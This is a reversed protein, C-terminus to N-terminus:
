TCPTEQPADTPPTWADIPAPGVSAYSVCGYSAEALASLRRLLVGGRRPPHRRGGPRRHPAARPRRRRRRRWRASCTSWSSPGASSTAPRCRREGLVQELPGGAAWRYAAWAFGLDPERLFALGHDKEVRDLRGWTRVTEALVERVRGEPLRPPAADDTQRSEYVLASVCAALEAPTLGAWLGDRLCEAALLDLESYLRALREGDPTVSTGTSTASRSSCRACGTSRARSRTRGPSSGSSSSARDGQGAPLLARGLPRPGRPRRLRPVPAARIQQRLEAIPRTTPRRRGTAGAAPRPRRRRAGEARLTAALDRRSQPSRPNFAKPM